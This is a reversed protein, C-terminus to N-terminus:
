SASSNGPKQVIIYGHSVCRLDNFVLNLLVIYVGTSMKELVTHSVEECSKNRPLSVAPFHSEANTDPDVAAAFMQSHSSLADLGWHPGAISAIWFNSKTMYFM